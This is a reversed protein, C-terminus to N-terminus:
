NKRPIYKQYLLHSKHWCGNQKTCKKIEEDFSLNCDIHVVLYKEVKKELVTCGTVVIDEMKNRKPAGFIIFETKIENVNLEKKRFILLLVKKLIYIQNLFQKEVVFSLLIM